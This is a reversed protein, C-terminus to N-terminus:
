AAHRLTTGRTGAKRNPAFGNAALAEDANGYFEGLRYIRRAEKGNAVERGFERAIRVLQEIQKVSGLKAKRDQTWINDEIGCRVHLGMAIAMMNIPLVNLMSTELTLVAGDPVARVFNALNYLNPADFGGGIAVWTLILPVNCTGRRMMREVTELQTINALQFHTQIRNASLRRIHEEVWEPGAPITMERYARYMEPEGLSTGAIDAECMQEVVNMQNSNIAITVQDPAPKLEALMHRTDDSLWKADAGEGEPAFSISGGVQLVMDPVAVRLRALLENFMSLRKSGKGDLERVHLHLVTAGANYCDVAKQVHEDMSVPIDDPFDSPMWEPGYPACTIVLKEQNEPFLSGDLFNM